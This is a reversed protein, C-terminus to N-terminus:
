RRKIFGGIAGAIKELPALMGGDPATGGVSKVTEVTKAIMYNVVILACTSAAWQYMAFYVSTPDFIKEAFLDFPAFNRDHNWLRYLGNLTMFILDCLTIYVPLIIVHLCKRVVWPRTTMRLIAVQKRAEPDLVALTTADVDGQENKIRDTGAKFQEIEAAMQKTWAEVKEPPLAAIEAKLAEPETAKSPTGTVAEYVKKGTSFLEVAGSIAAFIAPLM